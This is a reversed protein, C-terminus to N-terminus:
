GRNALDNLVVKGKRYMARALGAFRFVTRTAVSDCADYVGLFCVDKGNKGLFGAKFHYTGPNTVPNIGHLNYWKAGKGKLWSLAKWQLLYSGQSNLGEDSTAGYLYIGMDGIGSCVVGSV